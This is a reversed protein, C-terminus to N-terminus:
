CRACGLCLVQIFRHQGVCWVVRHQSSASETDVGVGCLVCLLLRYMGPVQSCVCHRCSYHIRGSGGGRRCVENVAIIQGNAKKV